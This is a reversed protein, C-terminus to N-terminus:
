FNSNEYYAIPQPTGIKNELLITAFEFSRRAKSKRFYKYVIKNILNPIKFSKINITNGELEFLKIKNRQGDGFLTGSDSNFEKIFGLVDKSNHVAKSFM